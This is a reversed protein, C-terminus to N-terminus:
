AQPGGSSPPLLHPRAEPASLHPVTQPPLNVKIKLELLKKNSSTLCRNSTAHHINMGPNPAGKWNGHPPPLFFSASLAHRRAVKTLPWVAAMSVNGLALQKNKRLHGCTRPLGHKTLRLFFVCYGSPGSCVWGAVNVVLLELVRISM